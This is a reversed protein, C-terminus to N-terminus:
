APLESTKCSPFPSSAGLDTRTGFDNRYDSTKTAEGTLREALKNGEKGTLLTTAPGSGIPRRRLLGNSHSDAPQGDPDQSKHEPRHTYRGLVNALTDIV